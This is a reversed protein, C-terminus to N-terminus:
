RAFVDVYFTSEPLSRLIEKMKEAPVWEELVLEMREQVIYNFEKMGLRGALDRVCEIAPDVYPITAEFCLCPPAFKPSLGQLVEREYGEVDIKMFQPIGYDMIVSDLTIQRVTISRQWKEAPWRDRLSEAWGPACTALQNDTCLLLAVAGSEPGAAAEIIEVGAPHGKYWIRRLEKAMEPQPEIAVVKAGLDVFIQTRTGLHAGVNFVLDGRNVFQRYLRSMALSQEDTYRIKM